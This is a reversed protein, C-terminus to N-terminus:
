RQSDTTATNAGASSVQTAEMKTGHGSFGTLKGASALKFRTERGAWPLQWSLTDDEVSFAYINLRANPQAVSVFGHPFFHYDGTWGSNSVVKWRGLFDAIKLKSIRDHAAARKLAESHQPSWWLAIRCKRSLPKKGNFAAGDFVGADVGESVWVGNSVVDGFTAPLWEKLGDGGDLSLLRSGTRFALVQSDEWNLEEKSIGVFGQAHPHVIAVEDLDAKTTVGDAILTRFLEHRLLPNPRFALWAAVGGLAVVVALGAVLLRRSRGGPSAAAPSVPVAM